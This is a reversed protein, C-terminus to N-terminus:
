REQAYLSIKTTRTTKLSFLSLWIGGGHVKVLDDVDIDVPKSKVYLSFTNILSPSMLYVKHDVGAHELYQRHSSAYQFFPDLLTNVEVNSTRYMNVYLMMYVRSIVSFDNPLNLISNTRSALLPSDTSNLCIYMISLGKCGCFSECVQTVLILVLSHLLKNVFAQELMSM